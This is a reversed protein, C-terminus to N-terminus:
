QVLGDGTLGSAVWKEAATLAELLDLGLDEIM